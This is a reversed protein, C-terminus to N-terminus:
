AELLAYFKDMEEPYRNGAAQLHETLQSRLAESKCLHSIGEAIAEANAQVRYGSEGHVVQRQFSPIDTVVVPRHLALAEEVAICHAETYSPQVYIDCEAMYPYPNSKEGMLVFHEEIGYRAAQRSLEDRLLGNGILYWRVSRGQEVLIRCAELALRVGKEEGLRAVTAIRIGDFGDTYGEERALRMVTSTSIRNHIVRMKDTFEPYYSELTARAPEAVSVIYDGILFSSRELPPCPWGQLESFAYDMHNYLIKRKARVKEAVYYNSFFDLYSIAADYPFATSRLSHRYVAWRLGVGKGKAFKALAPALLKGALVRINGTRLLRPVAVSLPVTFTDFLPPLIRVQPPVMPFLVGSHDFLLLDADYRDYDLDSLLTLLSKEAGGTHLYQTVFLLKKKM